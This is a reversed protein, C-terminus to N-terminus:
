KGHKKGGDKEVLEFITIENNAFVLKYNRNYKMSEIAEEEYKTNLIIRVRVETIMTHVGGM